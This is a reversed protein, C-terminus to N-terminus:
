CLLNAMGAFKILLYTKVLTMLSARTFSDQIHLTNTVLGIDIVGMHTHRVHSEYVIYPIEVHM